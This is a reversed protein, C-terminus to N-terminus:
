LSQSRLLQEFRYRITRAQGAGLELRWTLETGEMKSPKPEAELLNARYPLTRVIELVVREKKQNKAEIELTSERSEPKEVVELVREQVVVDRAFRSAIEAEENPAVWGLADQGVWAGQEYFDVKGPPLPFGLTNVFRHKLLVGDGEWFYFPELAFTGSFLPLMLAENPRLAVSGEYPFDWLEGQEQQPALAELAVGAPQMGRSFMPAQVLKPSGVVLTLRTEPFGTSSRLLGMAELLGTQTELRYIPEWSISDFALYSLSPNAEGVDHPNQVRGIISIALPNELLRTREFAPEKAFELIEVTGIAENRVVLLKGQEIPELILPDPSSFSWGDLNQVVGEYPKALDKTDVRVRDGSFLLPVGNGEGTLARLSALEIGEVRLSDFRAGPALLFTKEITGGPTAALTEWVAAVGAQFVRTQRLLSAENAMALFPLGLFLSLVAFIALPKSNRVYRM